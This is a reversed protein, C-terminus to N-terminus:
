ANKDILTSIKDIFGDEATDKAYDLVTKGDSSPLNLKAGHEILVEVMDIRGMHCASHIPLVGQQQPLNPDAGLDLLKKLIPLSGASVASHIPMVKFANNSASNVNPKFPLLVEVMKENGFFCAYGLLQFGDPSYEHILEPSSSLLDLVVDTKGLGCAEFVTLKLNPLAQIAGLLEPNRFYCALMIASIGQENKLYLLDPNKNIELIALDFKRELILQQLNM